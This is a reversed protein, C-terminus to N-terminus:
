SLDLLDQTDELDRPRTTKNNVAKGHEKKLVKRRSYQALRMSLGVQLYLAPQHYVINYPHHSSFQKFRQWEVALRSVLSFYDTFQQEYGFGINYAAAQHLYSGFTMTKRLMNGLHHVYFLRIDTFLRHNGNNFCYWGCKAFWRGQASWKKHIILTTSSNHHVLKNTYNFVLERGVGVILQEWFTYQIALTIPFAEGKGKFSPQHISHDHLLSIQKPGSGNVKELTHYFWNPKYLENTNPVFFYEQGAKKILGMNVLSNEYFVTGTGFTFDFSFNSWTHDEKQPHHTIPTHVGLLEELLEDNPLRESRDGLLVQERIPIATPNNNIQTNTQQLYKVLSVKYWEQNTANYAWFNTYNELSVEIDFVKNQKHKKVISFAKIQIWEQTAPDYAHFNKINSYDDLIIENKKGHDNKEIEYDIFEQQDAEKKKIIDDIEGTKHAPLDHFTDQKPLDPQKNKAHSKNTDQKNKEGNTTHKKCLEKIKQLITKSEKKHEKKITNGGAINPFLLFCFFTSFFYAILGSTANSKLTHAKKM